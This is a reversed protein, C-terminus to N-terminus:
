TKKKFQLFSFAPQKPHLLLHVMWSKDDVYVEPRERQSLIEALGRKEESSPEQSSFICSYAHHCQNRNLNFIDSATLQSGVVKLKRLDYAVALIKPTLPLLAFHLNASGDLTFWLSPSDSTILIDEGSVELLKVRWNQELSEAVKQDSHDDGDFDGVLARKLGQVRIRYAEINEHATRNEYRIGRLHLDMIMLLLAFYEKKDPNELRKIKPICKGYENEMAQFMKETEVRETESYHFDEACQDCVHVFKSGKEDSRWLQSKRTLNEEGSFNKLYCCPLYHQSKYEIM